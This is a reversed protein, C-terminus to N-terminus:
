SPTRVTQRTKEGEARILDALYKIAEAMEKRAEQQGQDIRALIERTIKFEEKLTRNNIVGYITLFVGLITPMASVLGLVQWIVPRSSPRTLDLGQFMRAPDSFTIRHAVQLFAQALVVGPNLLPNRVAPKAVPQLARMAVVAVAVVNMAKSFLIDKGEDFLVRLLDVEAFRVM